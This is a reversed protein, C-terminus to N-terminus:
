VITKIIKKSYIWFEFDTELLKCKHKEFQSKVYDYTLKKVM